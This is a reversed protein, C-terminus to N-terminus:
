ALKMIERDGTKGSGAGGGGGGDTTHVDSFTEGASFGSGHREGCVRTQQVAWDSVTPDGVTSNMSRQAPAAVPFYFSLIRWLFLPIPEATTSYRYPRM